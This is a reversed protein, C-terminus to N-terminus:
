KSNKRKRKQENKHRKTLKDSGQNLWLDFCKKCVKLEIINEPEDTLDIQRITCKGDCPSKCIMCKM